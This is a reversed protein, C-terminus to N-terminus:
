PVSEPEHYPVREVERLTIGQHSLLSRFAEFERETFQDEVRCSLLRFLHFMAHTHDPWSESPWVQFTYTFIM